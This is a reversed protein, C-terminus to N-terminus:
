PNRCAQESLPCTSVSDLGSNIIMILTVKDIAPLYRTSLFSDQRYPRSDSPTATKSCALSLSVNMIRGQALRGNGVM